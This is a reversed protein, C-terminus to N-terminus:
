RKKKYYRRAERMWKNLNEIRTNHSPHTSLFEPVGGREKKSMRRWFRPAEKPDYGSKAMLILGIRDAESEQSRGWPLMVGVQVGLGYLAMVQDRKERNGDGLGVSLLEGVIGLGLSQSVREAGHHAIAHAVEHGMVVAVGADSKCVPMIGEWFAVKGGPLAFANVEKGKLLTFEWRFARARAQRKIASGVRLLKKSEEKNSSRPTSKLVEQYAQTGLAIEEKQSLINFQTRNTYPVTACAFLLLIFPIFVRM